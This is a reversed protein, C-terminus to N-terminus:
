QRALKEIANVYFEAKKEFNTTKREKLRNVIWSKEAKRLELNYKKAMDEKQSDKLKLFYESNTFSTQSIYSDKKSSSGNM